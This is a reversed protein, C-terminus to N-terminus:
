ILYAECKIGLCKLVNSHNDYEECEFTVSVEIKADCVSEYSNFVITLYEGTNVPCTKKVHVEKGSVYYSIPKVPTCNSRKEDAPNTAYMSFFNM